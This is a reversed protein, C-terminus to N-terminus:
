SPAGVPSFQWAKGYGLVCAQGDTSTVLLTWTGDPSATIEMVKGSTTLGVATTQEDYKKALHGIIAERDHCVETAVAQGASLVVLSVVMPPMLSRLM